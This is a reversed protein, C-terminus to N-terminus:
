NTDSRRVLPAVRFSSLGSGKVTFLFLPMSFCIFFQIITPTLNQMVIRVTVNQKCHLACPLVVFRNVLKQPNLAPSFLCFM